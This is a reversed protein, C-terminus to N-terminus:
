LFLTLIVLNMSLAMCDNEYREVSAIGLVGLSRLEM